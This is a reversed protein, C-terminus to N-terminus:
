GSVRQPALILAFAQVVITGIVIAGLLTTAWEPAAAGRYVDLALAVGILGSSTLSPATEGGRTARSFTHALRAGARRAFGRAVVFVAALAFTELSPSLGVSAVVLVLVVFPHQLYNLDRVVRAQAVNGAIKWTLGALLGAFVASLSLYTAAGGLLLLSGVVFVHQEAESSTQGVLLAGAFAVTVAIGALAFPLLLQMALSGPQMAAVVAGGALIMLVDDLNDDDAAAATVAACVGATVALLWPHSGHALWFAYIAVVAVGVIAIVTTTRTMSARMLQTLRGHGPEVSLGVFVGLMALAMAVGPDILLLVSPSLLNLGHPGIAIGFVLLAATSWATM